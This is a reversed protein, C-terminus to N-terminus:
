SPPFSIIKLDLSYKSFWHPNRTRWTSPQSYSKPPFGCPDFRTSGVASPWSREYERGGSVFPTLQEAIVALPQQIEFDKYAHAQRHNLRSSQRWTSVEGNALM